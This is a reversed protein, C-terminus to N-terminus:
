CVTARLDNMLSKNPWPDLARNIHWKRDNAQEIAGTFNPSGLSSIKTLSRGMCNIMNKNWLKDKCQEPRDVSVVPLENMWFAEVLQNWKFEIEVMMSSDHDCGDDLNNDYKM